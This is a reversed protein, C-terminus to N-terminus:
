VEEWVKTSLYGESGAGADEVVIEVVSEAVISVIGILKYDICVLFIELPLESCGSGLFEFKMDSGFVLVERAFTVGDVAVAFHDAVSDIRSASIGYFALYYSLIM